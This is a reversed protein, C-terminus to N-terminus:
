ADRQAAAQTNAAVAQPFFMQAFRFYTTIPVLVLCGILFVLNGNDASLPSGMLGSVIRAAGSLALSFLVGYGASSLLITHNLSLRM